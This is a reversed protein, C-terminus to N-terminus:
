RYLKSDRETGGTRNEIAEAATGEAWSAAALLAVLATMRSQLSPVPVQIMPTPNTFLVIALCGIKATNM